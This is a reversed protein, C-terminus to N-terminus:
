PAEEHTQEFIDPKCPYFRRDQTPFPERVIWDGRIATMNGEATEIVIEQPEGTGNFNMSPIYGLFEVVENVDGSDFRIADVEIPRKKFKM